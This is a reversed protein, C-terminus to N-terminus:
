SVANSQALKATDIMMCLFEGVDKDEAKENHVQNSITRLKRAERRELKNRKEEAKLRTYIVM